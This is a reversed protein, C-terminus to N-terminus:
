EEGRARRRAQEQAARLRELDSAPSSKPPKQKDDRPRAGTAGPAAPTAPQNRPLEPTASHTPRGLWGLGVRRLLAAAQGPPLIVRRLAIDLPLLLLALWLLPLGIERVAGRSAVNADFAAEPAPGVRGATAQALAALLGPNAGRSRYEASQPVVAGATVAGVPQGAADRATLQVLYAGPRTNTVAARYQGPGVERLALESGDGGALRATVVLSTRPRGLEDQAQATLILTAGSSSAQLTLNQAGQPPLLWGILRASARPFQDWAIWNAGWKGRFDSTWAVARGLGYQWAALLPDGRPTALLVQATARPTTIVYGKLEPTEELGRLIPHEATRTPAFEGEVIYPQIVAQAEQALITPLNAARDTLFTRGGGAQAMDRIFRVHEGDGVAISTLTVKEDHLARVIDLAGEQQM